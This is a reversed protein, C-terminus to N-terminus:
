ENGCLIQVFGCPKLKLQRAFHESDWNNRNDEVKISFLESQEFLKFIYRHKGTIPDPFQYDTIQDGVNTTIKGFEAGPVNIVLWHRWESLTPNNPAPEDLDIICFTYYKGVQGKFRIEPPPRLIYRNVHENNSLDYNSYTINTLLGANSGLSGDTPYEELQYVIVIVIIICIIVLWM